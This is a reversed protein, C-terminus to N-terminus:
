NGKPRGWREAVDALPGRDFVQSVVEARVRAIQVGSVWEVGHVEVRDGAEGALMEVRVGGSDDSEVPRWGDVGWRSLGECLVRLDGVSCVRADVWVVGSVRVGESGAGPSGASVGSVSSAGSVGL